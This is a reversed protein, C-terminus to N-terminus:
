RAPLTAAEAEPPMRPETPEAQEPELMLHDREAQERADTVPMGGKRYAKAAQWMKLPHAAPLAQASLRPLCPLMPWPPPMAPRRNPLPLWAPLPLARLNAAAQNQKIRSPQSWQILPLILHRASPLFPLASTKHLGKNPQLQSRQAQCWRHYQRPKRLRSYAVRPLNLRPPPM